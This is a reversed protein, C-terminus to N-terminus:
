KERMTEVLDEWRIDREAGPWCAGRASRCAAEPLTTSTGLDERLARGQLQLVQPSHPSPPSSPCALFALRPHPHCPIHASPPSPLANGMENRLGELADNRQGWGPGDWQQKYPQTLGGLIVLICGLELGSSGVEATHLCFCLGLM